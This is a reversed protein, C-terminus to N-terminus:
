FLEREKKINTTLVNKAINRNFASTNAINLKIHNNM